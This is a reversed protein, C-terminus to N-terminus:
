HAAGSSAVTSFRYEIRNRYTAGPDLRASAFGPHNPADPFVQPEFALGDGERYLTSGKGTVTGDLFNGSYFQLGPADTYVAMVRGSDPDTLRAAM